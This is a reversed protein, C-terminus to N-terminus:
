VMSINSIVFNYGSNDNSEFEFQVCCHNKIIEPLLTYLHYNSSLIMLNKDIKIKFAKQAILLQEIYLVGDIFIKLNGGSIAVGNVFLCEWKTNELLAISKNESRIGSNNVIVDLISINSIYHEFGRYFYPLNDPIFASIEKKPQFSIREKVKTIPIGVNVTYPEINSKVVSNTGIIAGRGIYVGPAIFVNKGIWCDEEIIVEKDYLKFSEKSSGKENDQQRITLYPREKYFHNGSSIFIDPALMCYKGITVSGLIKCRDQVSVYDNILIDSDFVSQIEVNKGIWCYNKLIIKKKSFREPNIVKLFSGREINTTLGVSICNSNIFEVGDFIRNDCISNSFNRWKYFVFKIANYFLYVFRRM